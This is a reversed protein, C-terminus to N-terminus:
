QGALRRDQELRRAGPARRATPLLPLGGPRASQSRARLTSSQASLVFVQRNNKDGEGGDWGSSSLDVYTYIGIDDGSGVDVQKVLTSLVRRVSNSWKEWEPSHVEEPEDGIGEIGAALEEQYTRALAMVNELEDSRDAGAEALSQRVDDEEAQLTIIWQEYEDETCLAKLYMAQLRRREEGIQGLRNTNKERNTQAETQNAVLQDIREHIKGLFVEPERIFQAVRLWVFRDLMDLRIRQCCGETHFGTSNTHNCSYYEYARGSQRVNTCGLHMKWKDAKCFVKGALWATQYQHKVNPTQHKKWRANREQARKWTEEDILVPVPAEYEKGGVKAKHLGTYYCEKELIHRIARQSWPTHSFGELHDFKQPANEAILQQRIQSYSWGDGWWRWVKWVYEAEKPEVELTGCEKDYLTGYLMYAGLVKGDKLRGTMGMHWRDNKAQLEMRAMWAKIPAMAPDFREKALEIVFTGAANLQEYLDLVELMPRFGRYLRDERWAIIAQIKGDRADQLMQQFAPRDIRTGSPEVMKNGVKYRATDVYAKYLRVNPYQAIVADCDASQEEPSCREGQVESSTRVYKGIYITKGRSRNALEALTQAPM